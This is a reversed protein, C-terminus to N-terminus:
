VKCKLFTSESTESTFKQLVHNVDTEHLISQKMKM